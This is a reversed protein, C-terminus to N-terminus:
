QLVGFRLVRSFWSCPASSIGPTPAFAAPSCADRSSPRPSRSDGFRGTSRRTSATLCGGLAWTVADIGASREVVVAGAEAPARLVPAPPAERFGASTWAFAQDPEQGCIWVPRARGPLPRSRAHPRRHTRRDGRLAGAGVALGDGPTSDATVADGSGPRSAVVTGRARSGALGTAPWSVWRRSRPRHGCVRRRTVCADGAERGRREWSCCVQPRPSASCPSLRRPWRPPAFPPPLPSGM